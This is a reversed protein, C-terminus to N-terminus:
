RISSRRRRLATAAFAFGILAGTPEPVYRAWIQNGRYDVEFGPTVHDFQGIVGGTFAFNHWVGNDLAPILNFILSDDPGSLDLQGTVSFLGRIAGRWNIELASGPKFLVNLPGGTSDKAISMGHDDTVSITGYNTFSTGFVTLDTISLPEPTDSRITGYNEIAHLGNGIGSATYPTQNGTGGGHVIAGREIVMTSATTILRCGNDNYNKAGLLFDAGAGIIGSPINLPTGGNHFIRGHVTVDNLYATHGRPIMVESGPAIEVTGGNITGVLQWRESSNVRLTQGANQLTGAIGFTGTPGWILTGLDTRTYEGRLLIASSNATISGLNLFTTGAVEHTFSGQGLTDAIAGRNVFPVNPTGVKAPFALQVHLTSPIDLGAIGQLRMGLLFTGSGALAGVTTSANVTQDKVIGDITATGLVTIPAGMSLQSSADLRLENIVTLGVVYPEGAPVIARFSDSATNNPVVGGTWKTPDDWSGSGGLWTTDIVVAHARSSILACTAVLFAAAKRGRAFHATRM